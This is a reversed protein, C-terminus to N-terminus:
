KRKRTKAGDKLWKELPDQLHFAGTKGSRVFKSYHAIKPELVSRLEDLTLTGIECGATDDINMYFYSEVFDIMTKIRIYYDAMTEPPAQFIKGLQEKTDM